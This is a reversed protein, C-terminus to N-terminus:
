GFLVRRRWSNPFSERRSRARWGKAQIRAPNEGIPLSVDRIASASVSDKAAVKGAASEATITLEPEVLVAPKRILTSADPSACYVTVGRLDPGFRPSFGAAACRWM